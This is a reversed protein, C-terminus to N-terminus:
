LRAEPPAVVSAVRTGGKWDVTRERTSWTESKVLVEKGRAAGNEWVLVKNAMQIPTLSTPFAHDSGFHGAREWVIM